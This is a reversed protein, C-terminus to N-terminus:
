VIVKAKDLKIGGLDSTFFIVALISLSILSFTSSALLVYPIRRHGILDIVIGSLCRVIAAITYACGFIFFSEFYSLAFGRSTFIFMKEFTKLLGFCIFNIILYSSRKNCVLKKMLRM